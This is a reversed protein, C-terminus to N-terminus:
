LDNQSLHVLSGLMDKVMIFYIHTVLTVLNRIETRKARSRVRKKLHSTALFECTCTCTGVRRLIVKFDSCHDNNHTSFLEGFNM